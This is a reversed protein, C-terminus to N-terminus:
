IRLGCDDIRLGPGGAALQTRKAHNAMRSNPAKRGVAIYPSSGPTNGPTGRVDMRRHSCLPFSGARRASQYPPNEIRAHGNNGMRGRTANKWRSPVRAESVM